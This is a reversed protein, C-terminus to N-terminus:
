DTNPLFFPYRLMELEKHKCSRYLSGRRTEVSTPASSDVPQHHIVVSSDLPPPYLCLVSAFRQMYVIIYFSICHKQSNIHYRFHKVISFNISIKKCGRNFQLLHFCDALKKKKKQRNIKAPLPFTLKKRGHIM